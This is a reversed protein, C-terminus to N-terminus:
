HPPSAAHQHAPVFPNTLIKIKATPCSCGRRPFVTDPLSVVVQGVISSNGTVKVLGGMNALENLDVLGDLNIKGTVTVQGNLDGQATLNTWGEVNVSGSFRIQRITDPKGHSKPEENAVLKRDSTAGGDLQESVDLDPLPEKVTPTRPADSAGAVNTTPMNAAVSTNTDTTTDVEGAVGSDKQFDSSTNM